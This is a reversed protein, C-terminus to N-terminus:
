INNKSLEEIIKSHSIYLNIIGLKKKTIIDDISFYSKSLFDNSSMKYGNKEFMKLFEKPETDHLKLADPSFELFIFPVHYKSILEIGSEIAKGESGEVDIKIFALNKESLFPIYNSLKTISTEGSKILHNPINTNNDCFIWGDGINGKSIFFDCNKEETFLGKKILTIKVERNLCYNKRLIYINLNSPEFSLIKYGYKGLFFTYWGINSGIDLLYIDENRINKLSSYSKLINLIKQTSDKEWSKTIKIGSSVIDEKNYVYMDFKKDLYNVQVKKIKKEYENNYYKLQNNCFENQLEDYKKLINEDFEIYSIEELENGTNTNNFINDNIYKQIEISNTINIDLYENKITKNKNIEIKEQILKITKELNLFRKDSEKKNKHFIYIIIINISIILTLLAGYVKKQYKSKTNILNYISNKRKKGKKHYKSDIIIEQETEM